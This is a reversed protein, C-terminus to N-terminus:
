EESEKKKRALEKKHAATGERLMKQYEEYPAEGLVDFPVKRVYSTIKRSEGPVKRYVPYIAHEMAERFRAPVVVQTGKTIQLVEGNVAVPVYDLDQDNQKEHIFLRYCVEREAKKKTAKKEEQVPTEEAGVEVSTENGADSLQPVNRTAM